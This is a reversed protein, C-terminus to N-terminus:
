RIGGSKQKAVGKQLIEHLYLQARVREREAGRQEKKRQSTPQKHAASLNQLRIYQEATGLKERHICSREVLEETQEEWPVPGTLREKCENQKREDNSM